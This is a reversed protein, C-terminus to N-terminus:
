PERRNDARAVGEDEPTRHSAFSAALDIVALADQFNQGKGQKEVRRGTLLLGKLGEKLRFGQLNVLGLKLRALWNQRQHHHPPFVPVPACAQNRM